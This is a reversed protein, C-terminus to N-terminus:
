QQLFSDTHEVYLSFSCFWDSYWIIYLYISGDDDGNAKDWIIPLSKIFGWKGIMGISHYMFLLDYKCIKYAWKIPKNKGKM